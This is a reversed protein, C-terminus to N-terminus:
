CFGLECICNQVQKLIQLFTLSQSSRLHGVLTLVDLGFTYGKLALWSEQEPRWTIGCSSCSLHHCILSLVGDLRVVFRKRRYSDSMTKNCQPCDKKEPYLHQIQAEEFSRATKAMIDEEIAKNGSIILSFSM